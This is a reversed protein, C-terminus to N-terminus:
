LLSDYFEMIVRALEQEDCVYYGSLEGEIRMWKSENEIINWALAQHIEDPLQLKSM